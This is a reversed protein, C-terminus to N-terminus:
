NMWDRAIQAAKANSWTRPVSRDTAVSTKKPPNQLIEHPNIFKIFNKTLKYVRSAEKIRKMLVHNKWYKQIICAQTEYDVKIHKELVRNRTNLAAVQEDLKELHDLVASMHADLQTENKELIKNKLTLDSVHNELNQIRHELLQNKLTFTDVINNLKLVASELKNINEEHCWLGSTINFGTKDNISIERMVGWSTNIKNWYHKYILDSQYNTLTQVLENYKQIAAPPMQCVAEPSIVGFFKRACIEAIAFIRTHEVFGSNNNLNNCVSKMEVKITEMTWEM